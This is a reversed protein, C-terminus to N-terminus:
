ALEAAASLILLRLIEALEFMVMRGSGEGNVGDILGDFGVVAIVVAVTDTEGSVTVVGKGSERLSDFLEVRVFPTVKERGGVDDTDVVSVPM